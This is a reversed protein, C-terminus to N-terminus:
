KWLRKARELDEPTDIEVGQVDTEVMKIKKSYELYRICEIKESAELKLMPLRYFDLLAEKRFAYVGKHKHYKVNVTEDRPYPIPSRSFYLAFNNKDVIVKVTNPNKIEDWDTIHVMLSALDIEKKTDDKFVEILKKLSSVETFPEDGQVNVVIDIDMFEVAEAIRDSGCEHEKKSIIAKGGHNTIEDFIIQSDTVVFVDDFLKTNVTAEYTRRIVSKGGLDQMLKGPFRSASYRAPIMSIIKM